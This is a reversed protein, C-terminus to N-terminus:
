HYRKVRFTLEALYDATVEEDEAGWSVTAELVDGGFAALQDALQRFTQVLREGSVNQLEIVSSKHITNPETM